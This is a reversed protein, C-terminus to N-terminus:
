LFCYFYYCCCLFLVISSYLSCCNYRVPGDYLVEVGEIGGPLYQVHLMGKESVILLEVPVSNASELEVGLNEVRINKLILVSDEEIM